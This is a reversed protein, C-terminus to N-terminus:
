PNELDSECYLISHSEEGLSPGIRNRATTLLAGCCQKARWVLSIADLSDGRPIPTLHELRIAKGRSEV